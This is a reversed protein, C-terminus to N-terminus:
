CGGEFFVCERKMPAHRCCKSLGTLRMFVPRWSAGMGRVQASAHMSRRVGVRGDPGLSDSRQQGVFGAPAQSRLDLAQLSLDFAQLSLELAQFSLDLAQSRQDLAQLSLDLAQFSLVLAQFRLDLAQLNLDLAHLSLDM